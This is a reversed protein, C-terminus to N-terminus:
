KSSAVAKEILSIKQTLFDKFARNVENVNTNDIDVNPVPPCNDLISFPRLFITSLSQNIKDDWTVIEARYPKMDTRYQDRLEIGEDILQNLEINPFQTSQALQTKEFM